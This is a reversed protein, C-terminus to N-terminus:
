ETVLCALYHLSKAKNAIEYDPLRLDFSRERVSLDVCDGILGEIGLKVGCSKCEKGRFDNDIM